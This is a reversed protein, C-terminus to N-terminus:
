RRRRTPLQNGVEFDSINIMSELPPKGTMAVAPAGHSSGAKVKASEPITDPHV